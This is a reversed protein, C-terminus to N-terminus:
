STLLEAVCGLMPREAAERRSFSCRSLGPGPAARASVAAQSPPRRARQIILITTMDETPDDIKKLQREAAASDELVKM